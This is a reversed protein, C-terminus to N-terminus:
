VGTSRWVKTAWLDIAAEIEELATVYKDESRGYPDDIDGDLWRGLLQVRGCACPFNKEIFKKHSEEMVLVLDSWTILPMDLHQSRHESLDFGKELMLKQMIEAAQYGPVAKIGASKLAVSQDALRAQLLVEAAPSRCINAYCVVLVKHFM